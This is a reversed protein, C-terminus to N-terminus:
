DLLMLSPPDTPPVAWTALVTFDSRKSGSSAPAMTSFRGCEADDVITGPGLRYLQTGDAKRPIPKWAKFFERKFMGGGAAVPRQQYLSAWASPGVDVRIGALAESNYREPCLAEGPNRGLIPDEAE